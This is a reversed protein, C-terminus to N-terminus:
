CYLEPKVAAYDKEKAAVSLKKSEQCVQLATYNSSLM